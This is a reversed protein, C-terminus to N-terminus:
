GSAGRSGTPGSPGAPARLARRIVWGIGCFLALVGLGLGLNVAYFEARGVPDLDNLFRYPLGSTVSGEPTANRPAVALEIWAFYAGVLGILWGASALPRRFSRHVFFADIWQLAPGLAHLYGELWWAGLTGSPTVSGPDDLYLRWYLFVVMFNLVATMGVFGDWRRSTRGAEITIMRSAAFFSCFLAWTTLFRFGGGFEAGGGMMLQRLCYGAALLFVLWRFVIRGSM